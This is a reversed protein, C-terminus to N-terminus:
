ASIAENREVICLEGGLARVLTELTALTPNAAGKEIRSIESQDIGAAAALEKQTMKRKKRLKLFQNFVSYYDTLAHLEQVAEDGEAKAEVEISDMLTDFDIKKRM